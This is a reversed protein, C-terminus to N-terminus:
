LYTPALSFEEWLTTGKRAESPESQKDSAQGFYQKDNPHGVWWVIYCPLSRITDTREGRLNEKHQADTAM